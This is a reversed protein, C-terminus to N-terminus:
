AGLYDALARRVVEAFSIRKREADADALARLRDPLTVATVTGIRPRGRGRKEKGAKEKVAEM